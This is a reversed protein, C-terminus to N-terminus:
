APPTPLGSLAERSFSNILMGNIKLQYRCGLAEAAKESMEMRSFYIQLFEMVSSTAEMWVEYRIVHNREDVLLQNERIAYNVRDHIDTPDYDKDKRVRTRHADSKDALIVAAAIPTVPFGTEEEHNGVAAIVELVDAIPMGADRLVSFLICSGSLGHNKRNVCNGVDHVWGAIAALEVTADDYSLKRLIEAAATSVHGTHRPGHETYGLSALMQNAWLVMAQIEPNNRVEKITM